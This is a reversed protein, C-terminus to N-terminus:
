FVSPVTSSYLTSFWLYRTVKFKLYDIFYDLYSLKMKAKIRM